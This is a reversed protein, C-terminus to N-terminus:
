LFQGSQGTQRAAGLPALEDELLGFLLHDQWEGDILLYARAYGEHRFGVHELLRRSRENQPACAAEIRHLRLHDFAHRALLRVARSMHGQGAHPAGMWYGLTATQAVGRRVNGLTAGGLLANDRERFILFGYAEDAVRDREQRLVRRRFASKTLDDYPWTPEWPALFSRSEERLERWAAFDGILAPRLYLGEAQLRQPSEPFRAFRFLSM